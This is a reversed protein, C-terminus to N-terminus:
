KNTEGEYKFENYMPCNIKWPKFEDWYHNLLILKGKPITESKLYPNLVNVGSSFCQWKGNVKKLENYGSCANWEYGISTHRYDYGVNRFHTFILAQEHGPCLLGNTQKIFEEFKFFGPQSVIQVGGNLYEPMGLTHKPIQQHNIAIFPKSKAAEVLVSIPGFIIADVDLFIFPNQWKTLNYLKFRVNHHNLVRSKIKEMQYSFSDRLISNKLRKFFNTKYEAKAELKIWQFDYYQHLTRIEEPEARNSLVKIICKADNNLTVQFLWIKLLTFHPDNVSYNYITLCDM